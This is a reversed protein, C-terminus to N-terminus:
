KQLVERLKESYKRREEPLALRKNGMHIDLEDDKYRPFIHLHFHFAHQDGAPENNQRITIGECQYAEKLVVAMKKSIEFIRYGIEDPLDYLNEFHKNPVVIVHGPNNGIFFSNVIVSVLEDRYVVDDKIILTDSSGPNQLGICIPCKYNVPAHNYM